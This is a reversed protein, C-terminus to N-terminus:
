LYKIVDEKSVVKYEGEKLDDIRMNAFQERHLKVVKNGIAGFMRKVQHYKGETLELYVNFPDIITLKASLCPKDEGKLMLKGSAFIDAENGKLPDSLTVKYIKKIHKKPSTLEHNLKGDDTLIIIGTTDKDLRGITSIKPDRRQWRDPLLSYILKGADNHSCVVNSPKNMVIVLSKPDLKEGLFTINDHNAKQKIDKTVIGNVAVHGRKIFNQVEKRNAYGLSTLIKDLREM